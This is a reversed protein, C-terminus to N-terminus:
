EVEKLARKMLNVPRYGTWLKFSHAAQYILMSIGDIIKIKKRYPLEFCYNIDYYVCGPNLFPIVMNQFDISTANIVIDAIRVYQSIQSFPIKKAPYISLISEIKSETRNTIYVMKPRNKGTVYLCARAAGGAGIILVKKNKLDIKHEKLSCAFGYVDTNDGIRKKNKIVVTNVAGIKEAIPTFANLYEIIKMKYPNTINFGKFGLKMLTHFVAELDEPPICLPFYIGEIKLKKFSFNHIRPSLTHILPYGILGTLLMASGGQYFKEGKLSGEERYKKGSGFM